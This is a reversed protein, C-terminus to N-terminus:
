RPSRTTPSPRMVLACRSAPVFGRSLVAVRARLVDDAAKVLVTIAHGLVEPLCEVPIDLCRLLAVHSRSRLRLIDCTTQALALLLLFDVLPRSARLAVAGPVFASRATRRCRAPGAGGAVMRSRASRCPPGSFGRARRSRDAPLNRVGRSLRREAGRSVVGRRVDRRLGGSALSHAPVPM